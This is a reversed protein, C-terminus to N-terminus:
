QHGGSGPAERGAEREAGEKGIALSLQNGPRIVLLPACSAEARGRSIPSRSRRGKPPSLARAVFVASDPSWEVIDIKEGRVGPQHGQIRTGRLGVCAGIPDVDRKTVVGGGQRARRTV